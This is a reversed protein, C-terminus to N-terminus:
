DSNNSCSTRSSTNSNIEYTSHRKHLVRIM